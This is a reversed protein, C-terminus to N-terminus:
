GHAAGDEHHGGREGDHPAALSVARDSVPHAVPEADPLVSRGDGRVFIM